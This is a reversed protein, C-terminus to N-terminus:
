LRAKCENYALYARIVGSNEPDATDGAVGARIGQAAAKPSGDSHLHNLRLCGKHGLADIGHRGSLMLYNVFQRL